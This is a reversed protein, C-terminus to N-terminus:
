LIMLELSISNFPSCLGAHISKTEPLQKHHERFKGSETSEQTLPLNPFRRHEEMDRSWLQLDRREEPTRADRVTSPSRLRDTMKENFATFLNKADPAV